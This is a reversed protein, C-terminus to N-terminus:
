SAEKLYENTIDEKNGKRDEAIIEIINKGEVWEYPNVIIKNISPDVIIKNGEEDYYEAWTHDWGVTSIKRAKFGLKNMIEVFYVTSEGCRALKTKIVWSTSTSRLFLRTKNNVKYFGTSGSLLTINDQPLPYDFNNYSYNMLLIASEHVDTVNGIIETIHQDVIKDGVFFDYIYPFFFFTFLILFIVLFIIVMLLYSKVFLILRNDRTM